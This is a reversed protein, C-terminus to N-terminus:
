GGDGFRYAIVLGFKDRDAAYYTWQSYLKSVHAYELRARVPGVPVGIAAGWTTEPLRWHDDIRRGWRVFIVQLFSIESGFSWRPDQHSLGHRGDVNLTASLSPVSASALTVMPGEVRVTAGYNLWTPLSESTDDVEVDSGSNVVAVGVAPKVRWDSADLVTSVVVGFDFMNASLDLASMDPVLSDPVFSNPGLDWAWYKYAAGVAVEVRESVKKSAGATFAFYDEPAEFEGIEEGTVTTYISKGYSFRAYTFDFALHIPNDGRFTRGGGVSAHGFWLDSPGRPAVLEYSGTAYIEQLATVNAPNFYINGPDFRDAVGSAAMAVSRVSLPYDMVPATTGSPQAVAPVAIGEMVLLIGWLGSAWARSRKPSKMKM